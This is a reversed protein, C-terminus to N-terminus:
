LYGPHPPLCMIHFAANEEIPDIAGRKWRLLLKERLWQLELSSMSVPEEKGRPNKEFVKKSIDFTAGTFHTSCHLWREEERSAQCNAAASEKGILVSQYEHNRLLSSINLRRLYKKGFREYYEKTLEELSELAHPLLYYFREKEFQAHRTLSLFYPAEGATVRYKTTEKPIALLRNKKVFEEVTEKEGLRPLSFEEALRNHHKLREDSGRMNWDKLGPAKTMPPKPSPKKAAEVRDYEACGFVLVALLSAILIKM